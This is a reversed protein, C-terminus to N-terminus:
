GSKLGIGEKTFNDIFCTKYKRGNLLNRETVSSRYRDPL